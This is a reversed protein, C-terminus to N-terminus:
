PSCRGLDMVEGGGFHQANSSHLTCQAYFQIVLSYHINYMTCYVMTYMTCEYCSFVCIYQKNCAIKGYKSMDDLPYTILNVSLSLSLPTPSLSPPPTLYLFLCTSPSISLSLYLTLPLSFSLYIPSLSLSLSPPPTLSLFLCTSPSISLLSLYLSLTLPLSLPLSLFLLLYILSRECTM